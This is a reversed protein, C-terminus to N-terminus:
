FEIKKIMNKKREEMLFIIWHAYKETEAIRLQNLGHESIIKGLTNSVLTSGFVSDLIKDLRKSYQILGLRESLQIKKRNEFISFDTDCLATLFQRVRDARFNTIIFGDNKEFGKYNRSICPPLFEDTLSENYCKEIM